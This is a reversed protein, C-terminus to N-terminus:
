RRASARASIAREDVSSRSSPKCAAEADRARRLLAAPDPGPAGQAIARAVTRLMAPLAGAHLGREALLVCGLADARAEPGRRGDDGALAAPMARLHGEDLLHGLEHALVAALQEDDLLEVLARSVRVDGDPWSWAGLEAHSSLAFSILEGAREPPTLVRGVRELRAVHGADRAAEDALVRRALRTPTCASLLALALLLAHTRAM